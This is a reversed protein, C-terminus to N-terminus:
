NKNIVIKEINIDDYDPFNLTKQNGQTKKSEFLFRVIDPYYFM